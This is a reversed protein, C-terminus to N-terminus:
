LESSHEQTNRMSSFIKVEVFNQLGDSYLLMHHLKTEGHELQLHQLCKEQDLDAEFDYSIIAHYHEHWNWEKKKKGLNIRLTALNCNNGCTVTQLWM